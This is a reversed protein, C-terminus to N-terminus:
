HGAFVRYRQPRLGVSDGSAPLRADAHDPLDAAAARLSTSM